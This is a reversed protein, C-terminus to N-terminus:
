KCVVDKGVCGCVWVCRVCGALYVGCVFVRLYLYLSSMSSSGFGSGLITVSVSVSFQFRVVMCIISTAPPYTSLWARLVVWGVM